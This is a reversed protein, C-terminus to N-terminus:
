IVNTDTYHENHNGQRCHLQHTTYIGKNGYCM